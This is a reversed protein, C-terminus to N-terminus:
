IFHDIRDNGDFTQFFVFVQKEGGAVADDFFCPEDIEGVYASDPQDGNQQPFIVFEDADFQGVAPALDDHTRSFAHGNAERFLINADHASAGGADLAYLQRLAVPDNVHVHHL